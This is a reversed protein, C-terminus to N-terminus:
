DAGAHDTRDTDPELLVARQEAPEGDDRVQLPLADAGLQQHRHEGVQGLVGLLDPDEGALVGLLVEAEVGLVAELVLVVLVGAVEGVGVQALDEALGLHGLGLAGLAGLALTGLAVLLGGVALRVGGLLASGAAGRRRAHRTGWPSRYARRRRSQRLHPVVPSRRSFGSR